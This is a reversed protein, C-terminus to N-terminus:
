NWFAPCLFGCSSFVCQCFCRFYHPQCKNPAFLLHTTSLSDDMIVCLCQTIAKKYLHLQFNRDLIMATFSISEQLLYIQLRHYVTIIRPLSSCSQISVLAPDTSVQGHLHPYLHNVLGMFKNAPKLSLSSIKAIERRKWVLSSWRPVQFNNIISTRSKFIVDLDFLPRCKGPIM